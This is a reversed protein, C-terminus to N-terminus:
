TALEQETALVLDGDVMAFLIGPEVYDNLIELAADEDWADDPMPGRLSDALTELDRGQVVYAGTRLRVRDVRIALEERVHQHGFAGDAHCGM